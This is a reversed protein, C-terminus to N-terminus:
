SGKPVWGGNICIGGGISTFPDPMTCGRTTTTSGTAPASTVSPASGSPVWGGNVCTGGGISTFPDPITCGAGSSSTSTSSSVGSTSGATSGSPAMGAPVWGGNVCVGGGISAFPDPTACGGSSTSSGTSAGPTATTFSWVPGPATVYAMTKSVIKWYYTTGAQLSAPAYTRYDTLYQSPGLKLNEAVLPPDPSTGFYIDYVQGWPGANWALSLGSAAVGAAGNAPFNYVPADPPLPTFPQSEFGTANTWKRNFQNQAWALIWPVTTFMNLERQSDSSPSTWNSSGFITMGQGRLMVLKEHNLGAHDDVRIEVGAHYMEDVNAADWVRAPNRYETSDTYVRVPIGRNVAAIMANSEREDTIRFMAADIAANEANFADIARSRYSQDPPFNLQPDEPYIPYSRALPGTVNAYDAFETTSTWLDDFKSMISQVISPDNSYMVIEDSYNQYPTVPVMEFPSYNAGSFEVEGQGAFLALKWHLIGSGVKNRMPLGARALEDNVASCASHETVCRPDMLLRIKVGRRWAAVLADAYRGDDMLWFGMDIELNEQAIYTLLNAGCDEYEPDCLREQPALTQASAPRPALGAALVVAGTALLTTIATKIRAGHEGRPHM